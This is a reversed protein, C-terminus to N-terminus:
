GDGDGHLAATAGSPAYLTGTTLPTEGPPSLYHHGTRRGIVTRVLGPAVAYGWTLALAPAGVTVRRRRHRAARVVSEAVREPSMLLPLTRLRRGTHNAAHRFFPTDVGAPLVSCVRVGRAGALALEQRLASDFTILAAKSMAYASMYPAQVVGGLVSSVDILMGHGQRRMVPLAARAGHVVGMVNVDFLRRVDEPPTGDAGGLIGVGAASVWVDIRGYRALAAAALAEVAGSDAVDTPVALAGASPHAAACQRAVDELVVTSRAALVVRAGLRAFALAVARGIGSSAGTVVVM